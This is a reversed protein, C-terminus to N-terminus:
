GKFLTALFIIIKRKKESCQVIKCRPACVRSGPSRSIPQVARNTLINGPSGALMGDAPCHAIADQIAEMCQQRHEVTRCVFEFMEPSSRNHSILYFGKNDRTDAKERVLLKSLSM